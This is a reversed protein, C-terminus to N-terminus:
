KVESEYARFREIAFREYRTLAERWVALDQSRHADALAEEAASWEDDDLPCGPPHRLAIRRTCELLLKDAAESWDLWALLEARHAVLRERLDDSLPQGLPSDVRIHEGNRSLLLDAALAEEVLDTAVSM